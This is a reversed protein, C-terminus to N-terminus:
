GTVMRKETGKEIMPTTAMSRIVPLLRLTGANMPTIINAPM